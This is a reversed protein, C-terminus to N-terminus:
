NLERSDLFAKTDTVIQNLRPWSNRMTGTVLKSGVTLMGPLGSLWYGFKGVNGGCATTDVYHYDASTYGYLAFLDHIARTFLPPNLAIGITYIERGQDDRGRFRVQDVQHWTYSKQCASCLEISEPTTYWGLHIGAALQSFHAGTCCGYFVKM